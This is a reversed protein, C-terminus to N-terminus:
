QHGHTKLRRELIHADQANLQNTQAKCLRELAVIDKELEKMSRCSACKVAASARWFKRDCYWSVLALALCVALPIELNM